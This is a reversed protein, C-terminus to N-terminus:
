FILVWASVNWCGRWRHTHHCVRTCLGEVLHASSLLKAPGAKETPLPTSSCRPHSGFPERIRFSRGATHWQTKVETTLSLNKLSSVSFPVKRESWINMDPSVWSTRLIFSFPIKKVGHLQPLCVLLLQLVHPSMLTQIIPAILHYRISTIKKLTMIISHGHLLHLTSQWLVRLKSEFAEYFLIHTHMPKHTCLSLSLLHPLINISSDLSLTYKNM